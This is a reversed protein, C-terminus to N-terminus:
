PSFLGMQGARRHQDDLDIAPFRPSAFIKRMSEVIRGGPEADLLETAKARLLQKPALRFVMAVVVAGVVVVSGVVTAPVASVLGGALSVLYAISIAVLTGVANASAHYTFGPWGHRAIQLTAGVKRWTRVTVPYAYDDISIVDPPKPRWDTRLRIRPRM